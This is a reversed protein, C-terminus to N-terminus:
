ANVTVTAGTTRSKYVMSKPGYDLFNLEKGTIKGEFGGSYANLKWPQTLTPSLRDLSLLRSVADPSGSNNAKVINTYLTVVNTHTIISGPDGVNVSFAADATFAAATTSYTSGIFALSYRSHKAYNVSYFTAPDLAIIRNVGGSVNSAVLDTMYGGMSHGALNILGTPIKWRTLTSAAWKGVAPVSAFAGFLDQAAPGSWDLMLVQDKNNRADIATALDHVGESESSGLWGHIIIWTEKTSSIPRTSGDAFVLGVKYSQGDVKISGWNGDGQFRLTYANSATAGPEAVHVYYTGKNLDDSIKGATGSALTKGAATLLTLQAGTSLAAGALVLNVNARNALTFRYYHDSKAVTLTSSFKKVGLLSGVNLATATTSGPNVPATALSVSLLTRSELAELLEM